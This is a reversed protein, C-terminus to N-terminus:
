DPLSAVEGGARTALAPMVNKAVYPIFRASGDAFGFNAGGSHLSWFHFRDCPNDLRGPGYFFPGSCGGYNGTTSREMAMSTAPGRCQGGANMPDCMASYWWGDELGDSPPREGVALTNSTGDTIAAIKTGHSYSSFVGRYEPNDRFAPRSGAVAIYSTYAATIGSVSDHLPDSLRSDTPCVFGRVVAASAIHPPNHNSNPDVRAAEQTQRWLSDQELHPLLPARWSVAAGYSKGGSPPFSIIAPPFTRHISEHNQLALGIQKLNSLCATRSATARVRQVAPLMFGILIGIIGIVVLLELVSFGVRRKKMM